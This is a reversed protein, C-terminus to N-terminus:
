LQKEGSRPLRRGRSDLHCGKGKDNVEMRWRTGEELEESGETQPGLELSKDDSNRAKSFLLLRDNCRGQAV